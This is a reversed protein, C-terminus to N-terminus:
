WGKTFRLISPRKELAQYRKKAQSISESKENFYLIGKKKGKGQQLLSTELYYLDSVLKVSIYSNDFYVHYEQNM